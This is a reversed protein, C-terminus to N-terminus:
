SPLCPSSADFSPFTTQLSKLNKNKCVRPHGQTCYLFISASNINEL